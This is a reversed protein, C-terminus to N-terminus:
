RRPAVTMVSLVPKITKSYRNRRTGRAYTCRQARLKVRKALTKASARYDLAFSNRVLDQNCQATRYLQTEDIM